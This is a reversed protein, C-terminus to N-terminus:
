RSIASRQESKREGSKAMVAVVTAEPAQPREPSGPRGVAMSGLGRM